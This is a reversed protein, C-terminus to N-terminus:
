HLSYMNYTCVFKIKRLIDPALIQSFSGPMSGKEREKRGKGWERGREEAEGVRGEKRGGEM